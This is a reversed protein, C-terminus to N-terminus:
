PIENESEQGGMWNETIRDQDSHGAKGRKHHVAPIFTLGFCVAPPDRFILKVRDCKQSAPRSRHEAPIIKAVLRLLSLKLDHSPQGGSQM